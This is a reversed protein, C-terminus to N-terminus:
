PMLGVAVATSPAVAAWFGWSRVVAAVIFHVAAPWARQEAEVPQAPGEEEMEKEEREDEEKGKGTVVAHAM